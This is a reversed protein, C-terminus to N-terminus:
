QYGGHGMMLDIIPTSIGSCPPGSAFYEYTLFANQFGLLPKTGALVIHYLHPWNRLSLMALMTGGNQIIGNRLFAMRTM